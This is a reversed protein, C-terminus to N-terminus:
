CILGAFNARMNLKRASIRSLTYVIMCSVHVYVPKNPYTNGHWYTCNTTITSNGHWCTVNCRAASVSSTLLRSDGDRVALLSDCLYRHYGVYDGPLALMSLSPLSPPLSPTLSPPLSSHHSISLSKLLGSVTTKGRPVAGRRRTSSDLCVRCPSPVSWM